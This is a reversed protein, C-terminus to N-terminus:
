SEARTTPESRPPAPRCVGVTIGPCLGGASIFHRACWQISCRKCPVRRGYKLLSIDLVPKTPKGGGGKGTLDMPGGLAASSGAGQAAAQAAQAGLMAANLSDTGRLVGGSRRRASIAATVLHEITIGVPSFRTQLSAAAEAVSFGEGQAIDGLEVIRVTYWHRGNPVPHQTGRNTLPLTATGVDQWQPRQPPMNSR